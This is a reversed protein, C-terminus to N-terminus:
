RDSGQSELSASEPEFGSEREMEENVNEAFFLPGGIKLDSQCKVRQEDRSLM